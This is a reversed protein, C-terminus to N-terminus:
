GPMQSPLPQHRRNYSHARSRTMAIAPLRAPRRPAARSEARPERSPVRHGACHAASRRHNLSRM